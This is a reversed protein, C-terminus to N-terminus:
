RERYTDLPSSASSTMTRSGALGPMALDSLRVVCTVTATVTAPTGVPRGFGSTDLAVRTSSCQLGQQALSSRASASATSNAQPQTRAISATRAAEGAAQAVSQGAMAVRGAVIMLGIFLILGPALVALEISASGRDSRSRLRRTM